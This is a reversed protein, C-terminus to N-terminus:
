RGDRNETVLREAQRALALAGDGDPKARRKFARLGSDSSVVLGHPRTRVQSVAPPFLIRVMPEAPPLARAIRRPRRDPKTRTSSCSRGKGSGCRRAKLGPTSRPTSRASFLRGSRNASSWTAHGRMLAVPATGLTKALTAGLEPNRVLMDTAAGGTDRIEFVPMGAGLFGGLHFIPRLM